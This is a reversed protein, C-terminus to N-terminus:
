YWVCYSGIQATNAAAASPAMQLSLTGTANMVVTGEITDTLVQALTGTTMAADCGTTCTGTTPAVIVQAIVQTTAILAKKSVWSARTITGSTTLGYRPGNTTAPRTTSIVCRFSAPAAAAYTPSTMPVSGTGIIGLTNATASSAWTATLRTMTGGGGAGTQDTGCSFTQTANDFLLKSTTANSCSPLTKVAVTDAATGVWVQNAAITTLNTGGKAVTITPLQGTTASGSLNSFAPQTCSPAATDNLTSAWTNAGCAGIGSYAGAPELGSVNIKVQGATGTDVATNTGATLVREASLNANAAFTVFESASLDVGGGTLDTSCSCATGNCTVKDTGACTLSAAGMGGRSQPLTGASFDAGADLGSIETTTHSHATAAKGALGPVTPSTATGGLDGTLRLGGTTAAAADPLTYTGPPVACGSAVGAATTGKAFEGAGVCDAGDAALASATSANGTLPGVLSAATIKANTNIADRTSNVMTVRLGTMNTDDTVEVHLADSGVAAGTGTKNIHVLDGTGTFAGDGHVSFAVDTSGTFTYLLKAGTPWAWDVDGAPNGVNSLLVQTCTLTGDAAIDKVWNSGTCPAPNAALATATAVPTTAPFTAPVGTLGAWDTTGVPGSPGSPGAAGAPGSPGSPGQPGTPGTPGPTGATATISLRWDNGVKTCAVGEGVCDVRLVYGQRAGEDKVELWPLSQALLLAAVVRTV